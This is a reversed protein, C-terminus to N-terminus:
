GTLSMRSDALRWEGAVRMELLRLEHVPRLGRQAGDGGRRMEPMAAPALGAAAASGAIGVTLAAGGIAAGGRLLQRRSTISVDNAADGSKPMCSERETILERDLPRAKVPRTNGRDSVSPLMADALPRRGVLFAAPTSALHSTQNYLGCSRIVRAL